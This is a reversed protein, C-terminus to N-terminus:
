RSELDRQADAIIEEVVDEMNTNTYAEMRWRGELFHQGAPTELFAVIEALEPQAFEWNVHSEYADQFTHKKPLYAQRLAALPVTFIDELSVKKGSASLSAALAGGPLAFRQLFSGSDIEAQTGNLELFRRILRLKELSPAEEVQAADTARQHDMSSTEQALAVTSIGLYIACIYASVKHMRPYIGQM